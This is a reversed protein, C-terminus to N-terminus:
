VRRSFLGSYAREAVPKLSGSIIDMNRVLLARVEEFVEQAERLEQPSAKKMLELLESFDRELGEVDFPDLLRDKLRELKERLDEL